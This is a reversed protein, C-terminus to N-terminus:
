TESLDTLYLVDDILRLRGELSASTIRAAFFHTKTCYSTVSLHLLQLLSFSINEQKLTSDCELGVPKRSVTPPQGLYSQQGIWDLGDQLECKM